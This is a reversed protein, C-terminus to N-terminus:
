AYTTKKAEIVAVIKGKLLLCYDVYQHKGDPLTIEYEPDALVQSIDGINWGARELEKDILQKRTTAEDM